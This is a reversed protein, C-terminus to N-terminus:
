RQLLRSVDERPMNWGVRIREHFADDSCRYTEKAVRLVEDSVVNPTEGVTGCIVCKVIHKSKNHGHEQCTSCKGM